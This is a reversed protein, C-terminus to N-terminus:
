SCGAREEGEALGGCCDGEPPRGPVVEHSGAWGVRRSLLGAVYIPWAPVSYSDVRRLFCLLSPPSNVSRRNNRNIFAAVAIPVRRARCPTTYVTAATGLVEADKPGVKWSRDIGRCVSKARSLTLSRFLTASSLRRRCSNASGLNGQRLYHIQKTAIPASVLIRPVYRFYSQKTAALANDALVPAPNGLAGAVAFGGMGAAVRGINKLVKSRSISDSGSGSRSRRRSNTTTTRSEHPPLNDAQMSATAIDARPSATLPVWLTGGTMPSLPRPRFNTLERDARLEEHQQQQHLFIYAKELQLPSVPLGPVNGAEGFTGCWTWAGM